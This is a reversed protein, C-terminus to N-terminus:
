SMEKRGTHDQALGKEKRLRLERMELSFIFIIGEPATKFPFHTSLPALEKYHEYTLGRKVVSVVVAQHMGCDDRTQVIM